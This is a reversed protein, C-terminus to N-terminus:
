GSEELDGPREVVRRAIDRVPNYLTVVNPDRWYKIPIVYDETRATEEQQEIVAPDTQIPQPPPPQYRVVGDWSDLKQLQREPLEHRWIWEEIRAQLDSHLPLTREIIPEVPPSDLTLKILGLVRVELPEPHPDRDFIRIRHVGSARDTVIEVFYTKGLQSEVVRERREEM